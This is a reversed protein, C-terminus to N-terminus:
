GRSVHKAAQAHDAGNGGLTARAGKIRQQVEGVLLGVGLSAGGLADREALDEVLGLLAVAHDLADLADLRTM